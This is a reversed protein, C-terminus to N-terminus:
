NKILLFFTVAAARLIAHGLSAIISLFFVSDTSFCAHTLLLSIFAALFSHTSLVYGATLLTTRFEDFQLSNVDVSRIFKDNIHNHIILMFLMCDMHCM